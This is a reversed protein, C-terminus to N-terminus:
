KFILYKIKNVSFELNLISDPIKLLQPVIFNEEENRKNYDFIISFDNETIDNYKEMSVDFTLTIIEPIIKIDIDEPLNKIIIPITLSKQTFEKVTFNLQVQKQSYIIEDNEPVILELDLLRNEKVNNLKIVETSIIKFSDILHSPGTITISDPTINFGSVPKYGKEFTIDEKLNVQIKKTELKDLVITLGELSVSKIAINNKLQSNIIRLLEQKSIPIESAENTYFDQVNISVIPQKIKYFLFDFGTTTLDFSIQNQNNESLLVNVPLNVYQLSADVTATFEKSFKSLFWLFTAIFLFLLFMKLKGKKVNNIQSSTM